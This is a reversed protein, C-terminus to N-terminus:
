AARVAGVAITWDDGYIRRAAGALAESFHKAIWAADDAGIVSLVVEHTLARVDLTAGPFFSHVDHSKLLAADCLQRVAPDIDAGPVVPLGARREDEWRRDRLWTAPHPIFDPDRWARTTTAAEVAAVIRATLAEDPQLTRWAREARAKAIRRAKPWASWFRAFRATHDADPTQRRAELKQPKGVRYVPDPPDPNVSQSIRGSVAGRLLDPNGGHQGNARNRARRAADRVMRRNILVGGPGISCVKHRTIEELCRRLEATSVGRTLVLLQKLDPKRGTELLLHGPTPSRAMLALIEVWLGRAAWSCLALGGDARYDSWFWKTWPDRDFETAAPRRRDSM